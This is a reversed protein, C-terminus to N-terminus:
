ATGAQDGTYPWVKYGGATRTLLVNGGTGPVLRLWAPQGCDPWQAGAKIGTSYTGAYPATFAVGHCTLPRGKQAEVPSRNGVNAPPPAQVATAAAPQTATAKNAMQLGRSKPTAARVARGTAPCVAHGAVRLVAVVMGLALFFLLNGLHKFLLPKRRRVYVAM